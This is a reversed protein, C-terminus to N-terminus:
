ETRLPHLGESPASIKFILTDRLTKTDRITELITKPFQM